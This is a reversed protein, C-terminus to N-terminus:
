GNRRDRQYLYKLESCVVVYVIYYEALHGDRKRSTKYSIMVADVPEVKMSRIVRKCYVLKQSFGVLGMIGYQQNTIHTKKM